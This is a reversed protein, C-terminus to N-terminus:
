KKTKNWSQYAQDVQARLAPNSNVDGSELAQVLDPNENKLFSHFCGCTKKSSETEEITSGGENMKGPYQNYGSILGALYISTMKEKDDGDATFLDEEETFIKIENDSSKLKVQPMMDKVYGYLTEMDVDDIGGGNNMKARVKASALGGRRGLQVACTHISPRPKRDKKPTASEAAKAPAPAAAAAAEVKKPAPPASLTATDLIDVSIFDDMFMVPMVLGKNGNKRSDVVMLARNPSSFELDIDTAGYQKLASLVILLFVPNVYLDIDQYAIKGVILHDENKMLFRKARALGNLKDMLSNVQSETLHIKYANDKPIVAMYNPYRAESEKNTFPDKIKSIEKGTNPDVLKKSKISKDKIVVLIHANTAVKQQEEPDYYIGMMAPRLEDDGVVNKLPEDINKPKYPIPQINLSDYPAKGLNIKATGMSTKFKEAPIKDPLKGEFFTKLDAWSPPDPPMGVPGGEVFLEPQYDSQQTMPKKPKSEKNSKFYKVAETKQKKWQPM